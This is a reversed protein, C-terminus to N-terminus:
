QVKLQSTTGCPVRPKQAIPARDLQARMSPSQSVKRHDVMYMNIIGLKRSSRADQTTAEAVQRRRTIDHVAAALTLFLVVQM